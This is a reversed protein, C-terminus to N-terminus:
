GGGAVPGYGGYNGYSYGGAGPPVSPGYSNPYSQRAASIRRIIAIIVFVIIAFIIITGIGFGSGTRPPTTPPTYGGSPPIAPVASEGSQTQTQTQSTQNTHSRITQDVYEVAKLLAQDYQKQKMLPLMTNRLHDDDAQTFEKEKTLNGSTVFLSSPDRCILVFVGNVHNAKFRDAAWRQMFGARDEPKYDAARDAPISPFTEVVFDRGTDRRMRNITDNAKQVTDSSFFGANDIVDGRSATAAVLVAVLAMISVSLRSTLHRM